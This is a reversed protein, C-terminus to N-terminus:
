PQPDCKKCARYGARTADARSDFIRQNQWEPLYSCYTEHFVKSSKNGIYQHIEEEPEYPTQVASAVSVTTKAAKAQEQANEVAASVTSIILAISLIITAFASLMTWCGGFNNKFASVLVMAASLIAFAGVAIPLVNFANNSTAFCALISLTM